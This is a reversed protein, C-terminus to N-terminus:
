FFFTGKINQKGFFIEKMWNAIRVLSIMGANAKLNFSKGAATTTDNEDFNISCYGLFLCEPNYYQQFLWLKDM